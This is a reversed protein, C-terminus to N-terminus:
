GGGPTAPVAEVVLRESYTSGNWDGACTILALRSRWSPQCESWLWLRMRGCVGQRNLAMACLVTNNRYFASPAFAPALESV